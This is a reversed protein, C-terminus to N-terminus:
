RLAEKRAADRWRSETDLPLKVSQSEEFALIAAAAIAADLQRSDAPRPAFDLDPLIRDIFGTDFQGANFEPNNMIFTFFPITTMIGEVRYEALARRM